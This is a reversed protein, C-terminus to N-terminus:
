GGALAGAEDLSLAAGRSTLDEFRAQGLRAQVTDTAAAAISQEWPPLHVGMRGRTSAAAGLFSNM